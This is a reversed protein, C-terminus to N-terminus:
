DNMYPPVAGQQLSEDELEAPIAEILERDEEFYHSSMEALVIHPLTRIRKLGDVEAKISEAEQTIVIRGTKEDTYHIDIGTMAELQKSVEDIHQPSTIVLIGSVNM